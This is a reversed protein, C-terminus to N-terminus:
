AFYNGSVVKVLEDYLPRKMKTISKAATKLIDICEQQIERSINHISGEVVTFAELATQYDEKIFIGIFAPLYNSFDLRSQWFTAIVSSTDEGFKRALMADVLMPAASQEKIDCILQLIDNKIIGPTNENILDFLYPIINITGIEKIEKLAEFILYSDGSNLKNALEKNKKNEESMKKINLLL